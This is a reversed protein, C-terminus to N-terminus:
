IETFVIELSGAFGTPNSTFWGTQVVSGEEIRRTTRTVHRGAKRHIEIVVDAQDMTCYQTVTQNQASLYERLSDVDTYNTNLLEKLTCLQHFDINVERIKEAGGEERDLVALVERVVLKADRLAQIAKLTSGGSTVVDELLIVGDGPKFSGEILKGTGHDKAEPRVYLADWPGSMKPSQKSILSAGTALPCGGLAVGAFKTPTRHHYVKNWIAESLVSLGRANLAALRVDIYTMSTKGSKLVFPQGEPAHLVSYRRLVELVERKSAM